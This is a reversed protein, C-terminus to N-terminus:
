LSPINVIEDKIAEWTKFNVEVLDDMDSISTNFPCGRGQMVLRWSERDLVYGDQNLAPNRMPRGTLPDRAGVFPCQPPADNIASLDFDSSSDSPSIARLSHLAHRANAKGRLKQIARAPEEKPPSTERKVRASKPAEKDKKIVEEKKKVEEKRIVEEKKILEEASFAEPETTDSKQPFEQKADNTPLDTTSAEDFISKTSFIHEPIEPFDQVKEENDENDEKEKKLIEPIPVQQQNFQSSNFLATSPPRLIAIRSTSRKPKKNKAKGQKECTSLSRPILFPNVATAFYGMSYNAPVQFIPNAQNFISPSPIVPPQIFDNEKSIKPVQVLSQNDETNDITPINAKKQDENTAEISKNPEKTCSDDMVKNPITGQNLIGTPVLPQNLPPCVIHIREKRVKKYIIFKMEEAIYLGTEEMMRETVEKPITKKPRSQKLRVVGNEDIIYNDDQIAGRKIEKRYFTSLQYGVRCSFPVAFFGWMADNIGLVDKYYKLRAYFDEIEEQTLQGQKHEEWNPRYRFFFSNPSRLLKCCYMKNAPSLKEWEEATIYNIMHSPIDYTNDESGPSTDYDERKMESESDVSKQGKRYRRSKHYVEGKEETSEM